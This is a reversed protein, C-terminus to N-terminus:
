GLKRTQNFVEAGLEDADRAVSSLKNRMAARDTARMWTMFPLEEATDQPVVYTFSICLGYFLYFHLGFFACVM